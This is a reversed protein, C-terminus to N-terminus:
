TIMTGLLWTCCTRACFGPEYTPVRGLEFEGDLEKLRPSPALWLPRPRPAEKVEGKRDPERWPLKGEADEEKGWLERGWLEEEKNGELEDENELADKGELEAKGWLEKGWLLKGWCLEEGKGKLEDDITGWVDERKEGLAERNGELELEAECNEKGWLWLAAFGKELKEGNELEKAGKEEKPLPLLELWNGEIWAPAPLWNGETLLEFWNAWSCDRM